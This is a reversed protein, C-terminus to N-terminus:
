CIGRGTKETLEPAVMTVNNVIQGGFDQLLLGIRDTVKQQLGSNQIVQVAIQTIRDRILRVTARNQLLQLLAIQEDDGQGALPLDKTVM